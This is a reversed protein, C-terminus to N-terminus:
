WYFDNTASPDSNRVRNVYMELRLRNGYDDKVDIDTREGGRIPLGDVTGQSAEVRGNDGAQFGTEDVVCTATINNALISEYYRFDTIGASMDKAGGGSNSNIQFQDISGAQIDSLQPTATM